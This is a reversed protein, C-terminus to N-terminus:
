HESTQLANLATNTDYFTINTMDTQAETQGDGRM